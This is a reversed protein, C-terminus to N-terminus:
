SGRFLIAPHLVREGIETFEFLMVEIIIAAEDVRTASSFVDPMDLLAL